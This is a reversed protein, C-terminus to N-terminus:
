YAISENKGRREELIQEVYWPELLSQVKTVNLMYDPHLTEEKAETQAPAKKADTYDWPLSEDNRVENMDKLVRVIENVKVRPATHTGKVIEGIIGIAYPYLDSRGSSKALDIMLKKM